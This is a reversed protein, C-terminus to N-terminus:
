RMNDSPHPSNGSSMSGQASQAPNESVPAPNKASTYGAPTSLTNAFTAFVQPLYRAPIEDPYVVTGKDTKITFSHIAPIHQFERACEKRSAGNEYQRFNLTRLHGPNVTIKGGHKALIACIAKRFAARLQTEAKARSINLDELCELTNEPSIKM